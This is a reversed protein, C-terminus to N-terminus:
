VLEFGLHPFTHPEQADFLPHAPTDYRGYALDIGGVFALKVWASRMGLAFSIEQVGEEAKRKLLLDLRQEGGATGGVAADRAETASAGSGGLGDPFAGTFSGPTAASGVPADAATADDVSM